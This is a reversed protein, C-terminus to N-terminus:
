RRARVGAEEDTSTTGLASPGPGLLQRPTMELAAALRWLAAAGINVQRTEIDHVLQETIGARNAVQRHSLGLEHRRDAVRQGLNVSEDSYEM